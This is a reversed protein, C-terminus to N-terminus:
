FEHMKCSFTHLRSLGREMEEMGWDRPVAMRNETEILEVEKQNWM